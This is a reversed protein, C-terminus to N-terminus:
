ESSVGTRVQWEIQPSPFHRVRTTPRTPPIPRPGIVPTNEILKANLQRSTRKETPASSNEIGPMDRGQEGVYRRHEILKDRFQQKVRTARAGFGPVREIVDLNYTLRHILINIRRLERM